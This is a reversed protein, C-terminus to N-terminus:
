CGMMTYTAKFGEGQQENSDGIRVNVYIPDTANAMIPNDFSDNFVKDDGIRLYDSDSGLDLTEFNFAVDCYGVLYKFCITYEQDFLAMPPSGDYNFSQITGQPTTKYQLCRRPVAKAESLYEISISFTRPYPENSVRLIIQKAEKSN